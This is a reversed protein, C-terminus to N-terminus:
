LLGRPIGIPAAFTFFTLQRYLRVRGPFLKEIGSVRFKDVTRVM